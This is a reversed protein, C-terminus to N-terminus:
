QPTFRVKMDEVYQNSGDAAPAPEPSATAEAPQDGLEIRATWAIVGRKGDCELRVLYASPALAEGKWDKMQWSFSVAEPVAKLTASTVADVDEGPDAARAGGSVDVWQPLIKRGYGARAEFRSVYLTRMYNGAADEVWLAMQVPFRNVVFSVSLEGTVEGAAPAIAEHRVPALVLDEAALGQTEGPRACGWCPLVSLVIFAAVLLRM